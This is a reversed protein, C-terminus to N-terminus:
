VLVSALIIETADPMKVKWAVERNPTTGSATVYVAVKDTAPTNPASMALMSLAGDEIDLRTDPSVTGIGFNGNTDITVQVAGNNRRFQTKTSDDPQQIFFGVGGVSYFTNKGGFTLWNGAAINVQGNVDLPASPSATGIGVNGAPDITMKVTPSDTLAGGVTKTYFKLYGGVDGIRPRTSEFSVWGVKATENNGTDKHYGELRFYGPYGGNVSGGVRIYSYPFDDVTTTCVDLTRGPAATGIGVNTGDTYLPSNALVTPSQWYPVYGTSGTFGINGTQGTPGTPGTISAGATGTSGQPGPVTSAAGTQGTPGTPGTVTSIPNGFEDVHEANWDSPNVLTTDASDPKLSLFSHKVQTM